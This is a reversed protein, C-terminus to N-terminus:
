KNSAAPPHGAGELIAALAAPDLVAGTARDFLAFAGDRNPPVGNDWYFTKIGNLAAAQNIYHLYYARSELDIHPRRSVGYEGIVVPIGQGVWKERVQRFLADVYSQDAWGCQSQPPYPAGWFLCPSKANLTYDYPDYFHVEVALRDAISDRPLALFKLGHGINTNYAQVLLTRSGNLGGTARVADVFVQNFSQQVRNNEATPTDYNAHVENTGAFLLHQDYDRFAKAIQTWYAQQKVNVAAQFAATPHNELWGGDWHINLLVYMGQGYAYDVVQKVRMMWSADILLTSPDAHCDWAAPIRIANLGAAKVADILRRSIQPNGWATEGCQAELSNGLNWGATIQSTVQSANPLTQPYATASLLLAACAGLRRRSAPLITRSTM